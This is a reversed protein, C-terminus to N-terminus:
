EQPTSASKMAALEAVAADKEKIAQTATAEAESKDANADDVAQLAQMHLNDLVADLTLGMANAKAIPLADSETRSIEVGDEFIVTAAKIHYGQLKGTRGYRHLVESPFVSKTITM